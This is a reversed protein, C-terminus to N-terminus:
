RHYHIILHDRSIHYNNLIITSKSVVSVLEVLDITKVERESHYIAVENLMTAELAPGRCSDYNEPQWYSKYMALMDLAITLM